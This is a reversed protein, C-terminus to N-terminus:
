PARWVTDGVSNTFRLKPTDPEELTLVARARGQKDDLALSPRGQPSVTLALREKATPSAAVVLSPTGNVEATLMLLGKEGKGSVVLQSAGEPSVYFYAQAKGEANLLYLGPEGDVAGLIALVRGGAGVLRFEEADVRTKAAAGRLVFAGVLAVLVIAVVLAVIALVMGARLRSSQRELRRVHEVLVDITQQEAM